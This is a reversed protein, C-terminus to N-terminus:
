LWKKRKFWQFIVLVLLLMFGWLIYYGYPEDLEPMFKFNMGYVGVIFTLPMFFGSFLTLIVIVENVKQTSVNFHISLLQNLNDRMQDCEVFMRDVTDKLDAATGQKLKTDSIIKSVLDKTLLLMRRYVDVKRKLFYSDRIINPTKRKLFIKTEFTDMAKDAEVIPAEYSLIGRRVIEAMVKELTVKPNPCLTDRIDLLLPQERRHVTILTNGTYFMAIKRTLEQISDANELAETDYVRIILFVVDEILELKPLHNPQLCDEVAHRHIHHKAAIEELEQPTPFVIDIWELGKEEDKYLTRVM